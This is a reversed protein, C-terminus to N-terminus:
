EGNLERIKNYIETNLAIAQKTTYQENAAVLVKEIERLVANAGDSYAIAPSNTDKNIEADADCWTFPNERGYAEAMEEIKSM